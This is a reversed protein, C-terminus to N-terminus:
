APVLRRRRKKAPDRLLGPCAPARGPLGGLVSRDPTEDENAFARRRDDQGAPAAPAKTKQAQCHAAAEQEKEKQKAVAQGSGVLMGLGQVDGFDPSALRQTSTLRLAM